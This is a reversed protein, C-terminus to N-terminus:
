PKYCYIRLSPLLPSSELMADKRMARIRTKPPVLPPQNFDPLEQGKTLPVLFPLPANRAKRQWKQEKQRQEDTELWVANARMIPVQHQVQALRTDPRLNGLQELQIQIHPSAQNLLLLKQLSEQQSIRVISKGSSYWSFRVKLCQASLIPIQRYCQKLHLRSLGELELAKALTGARTHLTKNIFQPDKNSLSALASQFSKKSANLNKGAELLASDAGILGHCHVTLRGDQDGNHWVSSYLNAAKKLMTLGAAQESDTLPLWIPLESAQLLREFNILAQSMKEFAQTLTTQQNAQM